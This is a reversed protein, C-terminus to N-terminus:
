KQERIAKAIEVKSQQSHNAAAIVDGFLTEVWQM